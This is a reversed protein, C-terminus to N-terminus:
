SASAMPMLNSTTFPSAIHSAASAATVMVRINIDLKRVAAAFAWINRNKTLFGGFLSADDLCNGVGYDFNETFIILRFVPLNAHWKIATHINAVNNQKVRAGAINQVNHVAYFMSEFRGSGDGHLAAANAKDSRVGAEM